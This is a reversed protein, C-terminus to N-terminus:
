QEQGIEFLKATLRSWPQSTEPVEAEKEAIQPLKIKKKKKIVLELDSDALDNRVVSIKDLTMEAQVLHDFKKSRGLLGFSMIRLWNRKRKVPAKEAAKVPFLGSEAAPGTVIEESKPRRGGPIIRREQQDLWDSQIMRNDGGRSVEFRSSAPFRPLLNEKRLEYPSKDSRLGIFSKGVVLFQKLSM